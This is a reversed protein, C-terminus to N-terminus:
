AANSDNSVQEDTVEGRPGVPAAPLCAVPFFISTLSVAM